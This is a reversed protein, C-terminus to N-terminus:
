EDSGGGDEEDDGVVEEDRGGESGDDIEDENDEDGGENGDEDADEDDRNQMTHTTLYPTDDDVLDPLSGYDEDDPDAYAEPIEEEEELGLTHADDEM